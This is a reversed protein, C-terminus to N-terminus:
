KGLTVHGLLCWLLMTVFYLLAFLCLCSDYVVFIWFDCCGYLHLALVFTLSSNLLLRVSWRLKGSSGKDNVEVWGAPDTREIKLDTQLSNWTRNESEPGGDTSCFSLSDMNIRTDVCTPLSFWHSLRHVYLSPWKDTHDKPHTRQSGHAEQHVNM